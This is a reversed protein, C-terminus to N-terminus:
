KNYPDNADTDCSFDDMDIESFRVIPLCEKAVHTLNEEIFLYIIIFYQYQYKRHDHSIKRSIIIKGLKICNAKIRSKFWAGIVIGNQSYDYTSVM